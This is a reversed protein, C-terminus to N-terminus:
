TSGGTTRGVAMTRPLTIIFETFVGPETNVDITGGHQKVVIDHSMSLGLGTGEGAPKTTFFPNFMKEKVEQPIGTGNDRIRIEVWGGLNKTTASLTPEFGGAASEKRKAAAYFGNSILNLFVRTIEQPYVDAMGATPDLDRQLTVNFSPREARAGHYALNLSEEVIGNIDSHRHEGSGERSHLLMNRVISDARKGHQVVKELNGKLMGALEDVEEKTKDDLSATHLIERLEDILETSVSSFNNVFNLPNKIEHAIGATLQGLSALKETQVLRDQAARLDDLSRSLERTREQVEEFLRVNEIAILAQDAFTTALEIQKESFPRVVHRMLVFVGIPAGERLLPVGLMTRVNSRRRASSPAYEPDAQVDPVHVTKCDLLTRGVVSGREPVSAFTRLKNEQEVDLGCSAALYFAGDRPRFITGEDADCLRAASGVLTDLVTQLDFTSRSIVKLVDATATQQQLAERLEATRQEVKSELDAYSEQLREGMHNFQNALEELEDGTKISIQQAFDGGGIRMAGSRLAQIPGVMRRALFIGALVAFVSAALLVIALRELSAYLAAYAEEVPLEVFMTWGIPTIPASATLVKQGQINTAEQLADPTAGGGALAARVQALGSLDTNRLVLSIDPHAILRGEPGVVYAHGHEGVKIQSVVDWILKLNVEAISVGADKRAGAQALTMYPESERRFYVPGYYVKHAVAETFKPDSSLDVGSDIADMALRSVRLRERGTSDVQALETIAPVQRLLRLADFRRPEISGASWPLQTTWGLQSEIEKVFQSIKAAAAEAQEHQVRILAAKHERYYFFVEFLGNALLAVAVVAVFLAVYKTFLRTRIRRGAEGSVVGDGAAHPLARSQPTDPHVSISM